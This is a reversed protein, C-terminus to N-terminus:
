LISKAKEHEDRHVLVQAEDATAPIAFGSRTASTQQDRLVGRIGIEELDFLIRGAEISSGRFLVIYDKAM